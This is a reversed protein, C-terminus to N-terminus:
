WPRAMWYNTPENYVFLVTVTSLPQSLAENARNSDDDALFTAEFPYVESVNNPNQWQATITYFTTGPATSTLPTIGTIEVTAWQGDHNLRQMREQYENQAAEWGNSYGSSLGSRRGIVIGIWGAIFATIAILAILSQTDM